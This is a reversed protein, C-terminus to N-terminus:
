FSSGNHDSTPLVACPYSTYWFLKVCAHVSCCSHDHPPKNTVHNRLIVHFFTIASKLSKEMQKTTPLLLNEWEQVDWLLQSYASHFSGHKGPREPAFCDQPSDSDLMYIIIFASLSGGLLNKKFFALIEALSISHYSLYDFMIQYHVTYILLFVCIIEGNNKGSM